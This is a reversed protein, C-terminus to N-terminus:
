RCREDVSDCMVQQRGTEHEHIKRKSKSTRTKDENERKKHTYERGHGETKKKNRQFPTIYYQLVTNCQACARPRATTTIVLCLIASRNSHGQQHCCLNLILSQPQFFHTMVSVDKAKNIEYIEEGSGHRYTFHM